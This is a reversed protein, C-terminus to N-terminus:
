VGLLMKLGDRNVRTQITRLIEWMFAELQPQLGAGDIKILAEGSQLQQTQARMNEIQAETLRKQLDFSEKRLANEKDIQDFVARYASSDLSGLKDFMGFLSKLTDGTSEIGTNISEFAAQVKEADAQIRAVDIEARFELTKIRENSALKELELAMKAAAEEARRAEDAQKKIEASNEKVYGTNKLFSESAKDVQVAWQEWTIKGDGAAKAAAASFRELEEANQIKPIVFHMAAQIDKGTSEAADVITQFGGVFDANVKDRKIGLLSYADSVASLSAVAAQEYRQLRQTEADSQNGSFMRAEAEGAARMLRETEALSQNVGFFKDQAISANVSVDQLAKKFGGVDEGGGALFNKVADFVGSLVQVEVITGKTINTLDVLAQTVASFLGTGGGVVALDKFANILRNLEANYSTVYSTNGFTKNLEDAFKPLFDTTALGGAELLKGLEATTLGVSRAAIQFAGPLREGLQGRLEEASVTGKSIMQQVALLAGNTDSSSKGLLAMAKSIAEFIDRTGQGELATGKAAASLSVFNDATGTIELGLTNSIRKVYDLSEAAGTTSGSVLTMARGFNEVAVNADIFQKVVLSGALAQLAGTLDQVSVSTDGLRKSANAAQDLKPAVDTAATSLGGLARELDAVAPSVNDTARFIIGVTKSLSAM